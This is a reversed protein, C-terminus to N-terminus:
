KAKIVEKKAMIITSTIGLYKEVKFDCEILTNMLKSLIRDDTDQTAKIHIKM